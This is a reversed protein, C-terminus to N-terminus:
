LTAILAAADAQRPDGEDGFLVQAAEAARRARRLDGLERHVHAQRLLVPAVGSQDGIRVFCTYARDLMRLANDLNGALRWAEALRMLTVAEARPASQESFYQLAQRLNRVAGRPYPTPLRCLAQGVSAQVTARLFDGVGRDLLHQYLELVVWYPDIKEVWHDALHTYIRVAAPDLLDQALELVWGLDDKETALHLLAWLTWSEGPWDQINRWYELAGRLYKWAEAWERLQCHHVGLHYMCWASGLADASERAVRLGMLHADHWETCAASVEAGQAVALKWTLGPNGLRFALQAAAHLNAREVTLWQRAAYHSIRSVPEDLVVPLRTQPSLSRTAGAATKLYFTLVRHVASSRQQGIEEQQAREAAFVRLLDHLIFRDPGTEELLNAAALTELCHRTDAVPRDCLVAAAEVSIEPSPHLGLFRFVERTEPLLAEYSTAFARRIEIEGDASLLNLRDREQALRDRLVRVPQQPHEDLYASALSLALPLNGCFAAVDTAAGPDAEIRPGNRHRLLEQAEQATLPAMTLDRAGHEAHLRDLRQRSTVVARCGGAPPLLPFVQEASAANDLMILMPSTACRSRYVEARKAGQTPISSAPVRLAHLITELAADPHLPKDRDYGRLDVWVQGGPFRDEILQARAHYWQVVAATKGVGPGGSISLVDSSDGDYGLLADLEAWESSRGVFGPLSPPIRAIVVAAAPLEKAKRRLEDGTGAVYDFGEAVDAAVTTSLGRELRWVAVHNLPSTVGPQQLVADTFERLTMGRAIRARRLVEGFTEKM